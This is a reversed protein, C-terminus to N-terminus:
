LRNQLKQVLSISNEYDDHWRSFMKEHKEFEATDIGLDKAVAMAKRSASLGKNAITKAAALGKIVSNLGDGAKMSANSAEMALDKLESIATFEVKMPEQASLEVEKTSFKHLKNYVSQEKKM